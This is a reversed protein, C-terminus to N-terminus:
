SRPLSQGISEANHHRGDSVLRRGGSWVCDVLANGGSFIWADLIQDDERGAFGLWDARAYSHRGDRRCRPPRLRSRASARRRAGGRRVARPRLRAAQRRASTARANRSASRINWSACNQPSASKSTPIPVSALAGARRSITAARQLRWRRSQSGHDPLARSRAPRRSIPARAKIWTRPTSWVGAGISPPMTSSGACPAPAADLRPLGRGRSRSPSTSISRRRGRWDRHARETRGPTAARLSHPPSASSM